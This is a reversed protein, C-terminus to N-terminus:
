EGFKDFIWERLQDEYEDGMFSNESFTVGKTSLLATNIVSINHPESFVTAIMNYNKNDSFHDKDKFLIVHFGNGHVGNRHYEIQFLKLKKKM